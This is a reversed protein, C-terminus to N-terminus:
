AGDEATETGAEDPSTELPAVREAIARFVHFAEEQRSLWDPSGATQAIVVGRREDVWVYQGYVGALFYEDAYDPPIWFHLGYGRPAYRADPGPEQFPANPRTAQEVFGEPLLRAGNWVGDNALFWGFRAFDVATAQLCCYGIAIGNEGPKNQLWNADHEMGLPTWIKEEVIDALRDGYAGRVVASLVHTNPSTYHLDEGPERDREIEGIMADVNRRMIFANFFLPRIDSPEEPSYEENFDMGASMMLLHRLSTAGYDTGAFQPAYREAPDDLSDILGDRVGMAILGAVFSKAMSWSTFRTEPGAGRRYTEAIVEGDRLVVLSTADAEDLYRDLSKTEGNWEYDLALPEVARPLPQPDGAEIRSSPLIEDMRQFTEPFQEPDDLATMRAPSYPSWPRYYWLALGVGIVLLVALLGAVIRKM